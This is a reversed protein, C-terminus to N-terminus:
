HAAGEQDLADDAVPRALHWGREDNFVRVRGNEVADVAYLYLAASWSQGAFGMPRGSLGHFWENFEWERQRGLRVMQTLKHLQHEAEALQGAQVLAAVYFGGIFPWAGGNHYHHPLNLNRLRYYDRWDHDGPTIPPYLARVPHPENLGASHIYDLIRSAQGQDAIGFLIALVNGLTDFRDGYQRFGMYPLYFPREVLETEVRQRPYLWEKREQQVWEFDTPQEPGVWLLANVKRRVDEAQSLYPEPAMDLAAALHGACRWAACYLVNDFLVNYRNAFLDAWDMAEHVELLGCENSDQYRLWLLAKEISPWAARLAGPDGRLAYDYYQGIIYWLNGDVCGAHITDERPHGPGRSSKLSGGHATLAPDAIGAIGVNHPIKGLESQYRRLTALSRAHIDPGEQSATLWLGLGCIM